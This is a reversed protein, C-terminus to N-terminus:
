AVRRNPAEGESIGRPRVPLSTLNGNCTQGTMRATLVLAAARLSGRGIIRMCNCLWARSCPDPSLSTIPLTQIRMDLCGRRSEITDQRLWSVDM